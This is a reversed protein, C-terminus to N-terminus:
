TTPTMFRNVSAPLGTVLLLLKGAPARSLDSRVPPRCAKLVPKLGFVGATTVTGASM